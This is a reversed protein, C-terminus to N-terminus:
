KGGGKQLRTAELIPLNAETPIYIAESSGDHLGQVWLYRLYADNDKLSEGIIKNADAVGQARITEADAKYKASEMLAKAEQIRIQRNQDARELEAEGAKGQQWVGYQPCGWMGLFVVGVLLALIIGGVGLAQKTEHDM